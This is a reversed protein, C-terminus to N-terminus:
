GAEYFISSKEITPTGEIHREKCFFEDGLFQPELSPSEFENDAEKLIRRWYTEKEYDNKLWFLTTLLGFGDAFPGKKLARMVLEIAQDYSIPPPGPCNACRALEILLRPPPDKAKDFARKYAEYTKEHEYRITCALGLLADYEWSTNWEESYISRIAEFMQISFDQLEDDWKKNYMLRYAVRLADRFSLGQVIKEPAYSTILVQWSGTKILAELNADRKM